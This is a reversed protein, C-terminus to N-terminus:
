TRPEGPSLESPSPGGPSPGGPSLEGPSLESQARAQAQALDRPTDVDRSAGRLDPLDLVRAGAYVSRMSEGAAALRVGLAPLRWLACLFQRHGTDDVFAVAEPSAAHPDGAGLAARLQQLAAIDLFPLDAALVAVVDLGPPLAALGARVGAVPGGFPPDERVITVCAGPPAAAALDPPGVLVVPAGDCAALVRTVPTHSGIRALLKPGGMRSARGGALVIAGFAPGQAPAGETSADVPRSM